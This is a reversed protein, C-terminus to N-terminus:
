GFDEEASELILQFFKNIYARQLIRGNIPPLPNKLHARKDPKPHSTLPRSTTGIVPPRQQHLQQGLGQTDKM